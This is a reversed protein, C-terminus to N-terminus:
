QRTRSPNLSGALDRDHYGTAVEMLQEDPMEGGIGEPNHCGKCSFELAIYPLSEDGAENFQDVVQPNIAMLHTRIDATFQAPDGVASKSAHPMHCNVCEAHRRSNIKQYDVKDFHCTECETKIALGEAYKTTSHPNHCDICDMVRKTSRFLEGYQNNHGLFGDDAELTVLDGRIHCQGCLEAERVVKMDILYPDNVHNSGPGHCVECGVNDAAWRGVVGELNDQSGEPVYGTTHCAACDFLVQEDAHYAVWDGGMDLDENVLNYQAVEGTIVYGSQDVFRAMWGYGGVVYLIDDWTYGEPPELLESFPFQPAAGDVIRTLANAHGTGSYSAYLAEHCESCVDSGVYVAPSWSVGPEGAPGPPGEPGVPGEPGPPGASGPPGVEGAPGPPGAQGACAGVLALAVVLVAMLILRQM